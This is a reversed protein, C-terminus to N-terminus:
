EDKLEKFQQQKPPEEGEHEVRRGGYYGMLTELPQASYSSTMWAPRWYWCQRKSHWRFDIKKLDEKIPKTDGRVWIYLGIILIEVDAPLQLRLLKDLAEVIYQENRFNYKYEKWEGNKRQFKFGSKSKLLDHYQGNIDQMIRTDGGRDPHHKMALERYRAKIEGPTTCNEFYNIM